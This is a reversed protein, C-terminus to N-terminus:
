GTKIKLLNFLYKENQLYFDLGLGIGLGILVGIRAISYILDFPPFGANANILFVTIISVTYTLGLFLVLALSRLYVKIKKNRKIFQHYLKISIFISGLYIIDRIVFSISLSKGTFISLQLILIIGMGFLQERLNKYELLCFFISGYLGVTLFQSSTNTFIFISSNYFIFGVLICGIMGFFTMLIIQYIKNSKM